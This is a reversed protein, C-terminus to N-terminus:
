HNPYTFLLCNVAGTLTTSPKVTSPLLLRPLGLIVQSSRFLHSKSSNCRKSSM